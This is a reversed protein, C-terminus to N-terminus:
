KIIVQQSNNLHTSFNTSLIYGFIAWDVITKFHLPLNGECIPLLISVMEM